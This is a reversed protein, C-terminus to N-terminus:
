LYRLINTKMFHGGKSVEVEKNIKQYLRYTDTIKVATGSLYYIGSFESKLFRIIFHSETNATHKPM